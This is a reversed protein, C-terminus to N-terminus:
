LGQNLAKIIEQRAERMTLVDARVEWGKSRLRLMLKMMSPIDLGVQELQAYQAFVHSAANNYIIRGGSVVILRQALRAADDMSHTVFVVALGQKHLDQIREMVEERGKPDLGATPEDLILYRPDMALVGAIAVRRKEGGSLAFPSLEKYREFDLGAMDMARRVRDQVKTENLGMNMPGFAIDRYVTEDFLQHEPYQFVLGVKQRIQKLAAPNGTIEVGDVSVMGASPKLLGNFHQILTSKGSGTHGIMGIFEGEHIELNIDTLASVEYPTGPQYTYSVHKLTISM